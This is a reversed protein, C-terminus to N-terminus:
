TTAFGGSSVGGLSNLTIRNILKEMGKNIWVGVDLIGYGEDIIEPTNNQDDMKVTYNFLAGADQVSQLIPTVSNVINLRTVPNNYQFVYAELIEVIQLEITNLLERVHLYNYDSKVSQYSTKNAYILVQAQSPREIIANIGVPELYERDTVDLNYEIGALNPNSIIGNQNAVIAFPDGGLFKRVYTNSVDAAPPVYFTKGNEQYRLYPGFVGSYKGGNAEDPLSFRFSRPMNPNGGQPIWKTDFVPVPDVGPVYIDTFYPDQSSAFQRFSPASLIATTKGRKKALRSLYVKGGLNPKLGYGMTDVIYRYRIMDPNTLGRTIGDDSLMSYIKDVGDENSRTGSSNFGPLHRNTISLGDVNIFKYHDIFTSNTFPKQALVANVSADTYQYIPEASEIVYASGDYTKGVVVTAGPPNGSVTHKKILTGITITEQDEEHIKFTKGDSSIYSNYISVDSFMSSISVDIDYSLFATSVDNNPNDIQYASASAGYSFGIQNMLRHGVLDVVYPTTWDGNTYELEDLAEKNVNMLIGTIPTSGNVITEIYQNAGTQDRFEPIITGTWSGVLTVNPLNLFNQLETPKIGSSNFYQSYTPDTSLNVYDTWDGQVATVQIFYDSIQDYPRIWEFPINSASGYWDKAFIDFGSVNAKRVLFSLKNTGTNAFQLLPGNDDNGSIGYKNMIVGQLYETDPEWFRKKDFFNVYKDSIVDHNNSSSDVSLAVADVTDISSDSQSENVKLLNIAFVPSSLLCTDISRHFFSGKRELKTDVEGYFRLRDGESRIFVPSNYPGVKSFGPVLRLSQTTIVVRESQDVEITYVGAAKFKSLDLAIKAM